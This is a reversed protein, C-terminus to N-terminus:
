VIPGNRIKFNDALNWFSKSHLLHSALLEDILGLGAATPTGDWWNESGLVLVSIADCTKMEAAGCTQFLTGGSVFTAVDM